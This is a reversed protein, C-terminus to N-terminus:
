VVGKDRLAAIDGASLGLMEDLVEDTGEGLAPPAHRYSVPTESLRFPSAVTKVPAALDDRPQEVVLGRHKAQAEEFVQDVTNIPGCPVGAAELVEIWDHTTRKVTLATLLPILEARNTVRLANTAFRPDAGLAPDGIARCFARFQGDNGVAVVVM